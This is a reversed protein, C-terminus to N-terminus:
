KGHSHDPSWGASLQCKDLSLFSGPRKMLLKRPDSSPIPAPCSLALANAWRPCSQFHCRVYYSISLTDMYPKTWTPIVSWLCSSDTLHFSEYHRSPFAPFGRNNPRIPHEPLFVPFLPNNSQDTERQPGVAQM